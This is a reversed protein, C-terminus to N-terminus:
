APRVGEQYWERYGQGDPPRLHTVSVRGALARAIARFALAPADGGRYLVVPRGADGGERISGWLPVEGLFTLGLREAAVRGGGHAFPESRGGCHPCHYYSMNEVIGLVPIDVRRFMTVAKYVDALAVDQPTTVAVAGTVPITQSLTLPVDGTGPPLDIFLYDLDGWEVDRVLQQVAASLMPGRWVMADGAKAVLGMSMLKVGNVVPPVLIPRGEREVRRPKERAGTMMPLNPGYIDADLLGVAAGDISTAFALNVAVTSKGVGGKGSGVAVINKVGPLVDAAGGRPRSAVEAGMEVTVSDVGAMGRLRGEVDTRIRASLPCAPTTLVVRLAVAGGCVRIDRVMGLEVLGLGIEPDKLGRLAELVGERTVEGM